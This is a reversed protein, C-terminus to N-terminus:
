SFRLGKLAEEVVDLARTWTFETMVRRRAAEGMVRRRNEDELLMGIAAAMAKESLPDVLLGTEGHTIADAAGTGHGGIVPRGYSAAELFSIGFGEVTGQEERSPMVFVDCAAYYDALDKDSVRGAFRVRDRVGTEQALARLFPEHGGTGVVVYQLSPWDHILTPLSKIVTDHGKHPVLRSVSLLM